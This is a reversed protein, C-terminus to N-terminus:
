RRIQRLISEDKIQHDALLLLIKSIVESTKSDNEDAFPLFLKEHKQGWRDPVICLYNGPEIHIVASGLHVRYRALKGQVHAFHGEVTVGPLGLDDLLARVLDGRRAYAENSLQAEGNRQAVSVILDADRMVESFILPPIQELPLWSEERHAWNRTLLPHPEFYIRDATTPLSGGFYHQIDPFEFVARLGPFVKYPTPADGSEFKWGRSSFLKGATAADVVHGAFRNSYTCTTQEAPTLLYLERFAQKLPQVVRRQVIERQWAALQNAQLLHYPHALRVAGQLPHLDGNLDHLVMQDPVFLGLQGSENQFILRALMDRAAPLALLRTLEDPTFTDGNALVGELLSSRLRTVQSRFQTVAQKAEQYGATVRVDQPVSKLARGDRSVAISAETGSINLRVDYNGVTWIREPSTVEQAIRSEMAWELRTADAYGAVQALNALAVQVAAAQNARRMQGFKQGDKASQRLAHYRELLEENGQQLPLLGYAKISIQNHKKFGGEVKARNWGRVAEFLVIINDIGVRAEEFLRLVKQTLEDGARNFVEKVTAVDIVGLTSDPSNSADRAVFVGDKNPTLAATRVLLEVLPLADEWGLAECILDRSYAAVPLLRELTKTPFQRLQDVLARREAESLTEPIETQALRIVASEVRDPLSYSSNVVLKGLKLRMHTEAAQILNQVGQPKMGSKVLVRYNEKSVQLSVEEWLQRHHANLQQRYQQYDPPALPYEPTGKKLVAPVLLACQRFIAHTLEEQRCLYFLLNEFLQDVAWSAYIDYAMKPPWRKSVYPYPAPIPGCNLEGVLIRKILDLIESTPNLHTLLRLCDQLNPHFYYDPPSSIGRRLIETNDYPYQWMQRLRAEIREHIDTPTYQVMITQLISVIRLTTTSYSASYPEQPVWKLPNFYMEEAVLTLESMGFRQVLREVSQQLLQERVEHLRKADWGIPFPYEHPLQSYMEENLAEIEQHLSTIDVAL